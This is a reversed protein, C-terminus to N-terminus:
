SRQASTTEPSVVESTLVGAEDAGSLVTTSVRSIRIASVPPAATISVVSYRPATSRRM